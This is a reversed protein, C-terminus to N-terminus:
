VIVIIPTFLTNNEIILNELTSSGSELTLCTIANNNFTVDEINSKGSSLIIQAFNSFGKFASNELTFTSLEDVEIFSAKLSKGNDVMSFQASEITVQSGSVVRISSKLTSFSVDLTQVKDLTLISSDVQFLGEFPESGGFYIDNLQAQSSDEVSLVVSKSNSFYCNSLQIVSGETVKFVGSPCNKFHVGSVTLYTSNSLVFLPLTFPAKCEITVSPPFDTPSAAQITYDGGNNM